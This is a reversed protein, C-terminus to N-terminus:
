HSDLRRSIAVIPERQLGHSRSVGRHTVHLGVPLSPASGLPDAGNRDDSGEDNAARRDKSDQSSTRCWLDDEQLCSGPDLPAHKMAGIVRPLSKKGLATSWIMM